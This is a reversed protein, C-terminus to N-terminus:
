ILEELKRKIDREVTLWRLCSAKAAAAKKVSGANELAVCAEAFKRAQEEAEKLKATLEIHRALQKHIASKTSNKKNM